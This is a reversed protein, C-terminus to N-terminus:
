KRSRESPRMKPVVVHPPRMPSVPLGCSASPLLREVGEKRKKSRSPRQATSPVPTSGSTKTTSRGSASARPSSGVSSAATLNRKSSSRRLGGLRGLAGAGGTRRGYGQPFALPLLHILPESSRMWRKGKAKVEPPQDEETWKQANFPQPGSQSEAPASSAPSRGRGSESGSPSPSM